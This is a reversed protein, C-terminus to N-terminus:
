QNSKESEEVTPEDTPVIIGVLRPSVFIRGAVFSLPITDTAKSYSAYDDISYEEGNQDVFSAEGNYMLANHQYAKVFFTAILNGATEASVSLVKGKSVDRVDLMHVVRTEVNRFLSMTQNIKTYNMRNITCWERIYDVPRFRTIRDNRELLETDEILSWWINAFTHVDTAGKFIAHHKETYAELRSKYEISSESRRREPVNFFGSGYVTLMSAVAISTRLIVWGVDDRGDATLLRKVGAYVLFSNEVSLPMHSSFRGADTIRGNQTMGLAELNLMTDDVRLENIVTTPDLDVALLRLVLNGVPAVDIEKPSFSPLADFQSKSVLRFTKEPKAYKTQRKRAEAKSVVVTKIRSDGVQTLMDDVVFSVNPVFSTPEGIVVIRSSDDLQPLEDMTSVLEVNDFRDDRMEKNLEAITSRINSNGSRFVIANGDTQILQTKVIDVILLTPDSETPNRRKSYEVNGFHNKKHQVVSVPSFPIDDSDITAIVLKPGGSTPWLRKVLSLLLSADASTTENLYLVDGLIRRAEKKGGKITDLLRNAWYGVPAYVLRDNQSYREENQDVFGVPMTSDTQFFDVAHRVDTVDPAGVRVKNGNEALFYPVALMKGSEDVSDILTVRNASVSKLIEDTSEFIPHDLIAYELQDSKQITAPTVSKPHAPRFAVKKKGDSMMEVGSYM